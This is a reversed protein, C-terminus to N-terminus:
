QEGSIERAMKFEATLLELFVILRDISIGSDVLFADVMIRLSNIDKYAKERLEKKKEEAGM